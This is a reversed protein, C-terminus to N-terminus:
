PFSRLTDFAEIKPKRKSRTEEHPGCVPRFDCSQCASERPLPPLFGESVCHDIAQLVNKAYELALPDLPVIRQRFRGRRTCFFLRGEVVDRKEKAQVALAYLVPQLVEGGGVRLGEHTRDTGTKHDTIRWAGDARREEVLDIAGRLIWDGPLLVPPVAQAPVPGDGPREELGFAYEFHLPRWTQSDEALAHLWLRLDARMAAIEDEWIREIAPALDDHYEAALRDLTSDLVFQAEVLNEPDSPLKEAAQLVRLTEAQVHHFMRGRTLPDLQVLAVARRRPELRHIAGLLFQYPCVAFRQLATASYARANPREAGLLERTADTARVLGDEPRWAPQWRAWRARLARALHTNLELLYRARGRTRNPDAVHLHLGLIALDHELEDLAHQPEPPAPWALLSGARKEAEDELLRHDPLTGRVARATDLAYFSPVRPRAEVADLRSYSLVVRREAAGVALTLLAREDLIRHEQRQLAPSLRQRQTDLLLPDERPRQPFVREALGPVFVLQFTRGRAQEPKGVFVRGYRSAPPDIELTSLRPGLVARVEDLTVPGVEAMPLLEGLVALAREPRRLVRPALTSLLTTWEGWSASPPLAALTDVIPLAFRSLVGLHVIDREIAACRPSEPEVAALARLKLRLEGELGTLRRQWRARGGIVAAEVLLEEWKRPARLAGDSVPEDAAAIVASPVNAVVVEPAPKKGRPLRRRAHTHTEATTTFASLDWFVLQAGAAVGRAELAQPSMATGFEEARPLPWVAREPPPAGEADLTPVQALSLYEAFRRASLGEGACALLALFARGAPDPRQTGRSFYVPVRGRRFATDLYTAYSEPSRLFVAMADFPVGQEAARLIERAIEVCERGEGPASFFTVSDDTGASIPADTAFLYQQLRQLSTAPTAAEPTLRTAGLTDLIQSLARDGAPITAFAHPSGACLVGVLDAELPSQVSLDLCLIPMARLAAHQTSRVGAIALRLLAARDALSADVLAVDAHQLLADLDPDATATVNALRLENVTSALAGSFGPLRSTATFRPIEGGQRAKFTARAAVAELGLHTAPALGAAAVETAALHTALQGLGFRHLGFTPSGALESRVFDDVTDRSNAVLLIETGPPFSGVFERAADRRVRSSAAELCRIM